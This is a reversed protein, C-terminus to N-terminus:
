RSLVNNNNKNKLIVCNFDPSNPTIEIQEYDNWECFDGDMVDDKQLDLNYYFTKTEGVIFYGCNPM